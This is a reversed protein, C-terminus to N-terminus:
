WNIYVKMLEAVEHESKSKLYEEVTQKNKPNQKLYLKIVEEDTMEPLPVEEPLDEGSYIYLGLGFMALNKVLCRMITKNIDFMSAQEVRKSTFGDRKGNTWKIVQYEYPSSKMAKNAGDMVPLWMEHTIDDITVETFVMYGTDKDHIYPLLTGDASTFKTIKYVINPCEKKAEAWAWAWSLYALQTSGSKKKEVNENVNKHYLTEFTSSKKETMYAGVCGM